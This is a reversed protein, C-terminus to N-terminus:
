RGGGPEPFLGIVDRSAAPKMTPATTPRSQSAPYVDAAKWGAFFRHEAEELDEGLAIGADSFGSRLLKRRRLEAGEFAIILSPLLSAITTATQNLEVAYALGGIVVIAVLWTCLALWLGHWVLWLPTFIVASWYFKEQVFRVTDAVAMSRASGAPELVLYTKV